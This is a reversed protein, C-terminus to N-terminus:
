EIDNQYVVRCTINGGEINIEGYSPPSADRPFSASGPNMFLVDESEGTAAIHTHGFLALDAGYRRAASCIREFGRYVNHHHGHAMYIGKNEVKFFYEKQIGSLSDYLNNGAVQYVAIDRRLIRLEDCDATCDGLHLVLDCRATKLVENMFRTKGHTDSFVLIKM